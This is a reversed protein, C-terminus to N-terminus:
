RFGRIVKEDCDHQACSEHVQNEGSLELAPDMGDANKQGQWDSAAQKIRAMGLRTALEVADMEEAQLKTQAVLSVAFLIHILKMPNQHSPPHHNHVTMKATGRTPHRVSEWSPTLM